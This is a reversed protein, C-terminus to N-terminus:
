QDGKPHTTSTVTSKTVVKTAGASSVTSRTKALPATGESDLEILEPQTPAKKPTAKVKAARESSVEYLFKKFKLDEAYSWHSVDPKDVPITVATVVKKGSEGISSVCGELANKPLRVEVRPNM